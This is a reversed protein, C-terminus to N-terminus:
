KTSQDYKGETWIRVIKKLAAAEAYRGKSEYDTHLAVLCCIMDTAITPLDGNVHLHVNGKDSKFKIM